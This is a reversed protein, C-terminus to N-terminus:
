RAVKAKIDDLIKVSQIMLTRDSNAKGRQHIAWGEELRKLYTEKDTVTLDANALQEMAEPYEWLARCASAPVSYILMCACVLLVVRM